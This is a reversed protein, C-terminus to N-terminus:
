LFPEGHRIHNWACCVEDYLDSMDKLFTHRFATFAACVCSVSVMVTALTLLSFRALFMFPCIM